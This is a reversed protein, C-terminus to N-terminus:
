NRGHNSIDIYLQSTDSQLKTISEDLKQVALDIEICIDYLSKNKLYIERAKDEIDVVKKM